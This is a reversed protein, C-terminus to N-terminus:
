LVTGLRLQHRRAALSLALSAQQLARQQRPLSSRFWLGPMTVRDAGLVADLQAAVPEQALVQQRLPEQVQAPQFGLALARQILVQAPSQSGLDADALLPM